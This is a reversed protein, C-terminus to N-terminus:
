APQKRAIWWGGFAGGILKFAHSALYAPTLAAGIDFNEPSAFYAVVLILGYWGLAALGVLTGVLLPRAARRAIWAAIPAAFIFTAPPVMIQLTREPNDFFYAGVSVLTLALEILFGGLVVRWWRIKVTEM